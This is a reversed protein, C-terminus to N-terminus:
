SEHIILRQLQRVVKDSEGLEVEILDSGENVSESCRVRITGELAFTWFLSCLCRVSDACVILVGVGRWNSDRLGVIM